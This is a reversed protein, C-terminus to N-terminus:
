EALDASSSHVLARLEWRKRQARERLDEATSNSREIEDLDAAQLAIERLVRDDTALWKEFKKAEPGSGLDLYGTQELSACMRAVDLGHHVSWLAFEREGLAVLVASYVSSCALEALSSELTGFDDANPAAEILPEPFSDLAAAGANGSMAAAWDADLANRLLSSDGKGESSEFESYLGILREASCGSFVMAERLSMADLRKGHVSAVDRLERTKEM